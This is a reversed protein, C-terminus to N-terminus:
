VPGASLAVELWLFGFPLCTITQLPQLDAAVGAQPRARGGRDAWPRRRRRRERDPWRRTRM